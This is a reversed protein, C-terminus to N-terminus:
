GGLVRRREEFEERDIEGRAFRQRLIEAAADPLPGPGGGALRPFEGGRRVLWWIGAGVAGLILAVFLLPALMMLIGWGAGWSGVLAGCMPCM